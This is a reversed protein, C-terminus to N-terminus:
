KQITDIFERLTRPGIIKKKTGYNIKRPQMSKDTFLYREPTFTHKFITPVKVMNIYVQYKEYVFKINNNALRTMNGMDFTGKTEVISILEDDTCLFPTIIKGVTKSEKSVFIGIAKPEWYIIFDPIYSSPALITQKLAKDEVKKMPKIYEHELGKTLLYSTEIREWHNIYRSAKLQELYWSFYLEESSDFNNKM